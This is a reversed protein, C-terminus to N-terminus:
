GEAGGAAKLEEARAKFLIILNAVRALAIKEAPLGEVPLPQSEAVADLALNAYEQGVKDKEKEAWRAFVIQLKALDVDIARDLERNIRKWDIDVLHKVM